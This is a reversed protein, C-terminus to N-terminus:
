TTRCTAARPSRSRTSRASSTPSRSTPPRSSRPTAGTARCGTSRRRTATSSSCGAGRRASRPSRITTSSAAVSCQLWPDLLQVLERAMRTKAQGREGLFVIDQGALIANELAPIVSDEYGVVGPLIPEGTALRAILNARLEEKVTRSRWGSARLEALTAPRQTTVRRRARASRAASSNSRSTGPTVAPAYRLSRRSVGVSISSAARAGDWTALVAPGLKQVHGHMDRAVPRLYHAAAVRPLREPADPQAEVIVVLGLRSLEDETLRTPAERLRALVAELSPAAITGALGYGLSVARVAIRVVGAWTAGLEDPALDGALIV